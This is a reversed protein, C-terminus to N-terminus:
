FGRGLDGNSFDLSLVCLLALEGCISRLDGSISRYSGGFRERWCDGRAGLLELGGLTWEGFRSPAPRGGGLSSYRGPLLECGFFARCTEEAAEPAFLMSTFPALAEVVEDPAFLM